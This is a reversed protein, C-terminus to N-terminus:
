ALEREGREFAKKAEEHVATVAQQKLELFHQSTITNRNRPRPLDVELRLKITGPRTTMVVVTDALFIAEELDHTIFFVTKHYQDYIDLLHQHMTTKSVTDMARFPEDLLLIRPNNILARLIEVRRQMGSSLQNPFAQAIRDLNGTRALLDMGRENAESESMRNQVVLGYVVNQLVTKWPFLAGNQFVVVRDSGPTPSKDTAALLENDLFVEGRTLTDFGALINLLTSKGCGSPGVVAIFDGAPIELSCKELAHVNVGGPDYVKEVNRVSLYGLRTTDMQEVPVPPVPM